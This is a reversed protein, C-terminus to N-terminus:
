TDTSNPVFRTFLYLSDIENDIAQLLGGFPRCAGGGRGQGQRGTRTYLLGSYNGM